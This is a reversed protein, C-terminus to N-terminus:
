HGRCALAELIEEIRAPDGAAVVEGNSGAHLPDGQWDCMRGGAGEVIPVLAAFDHLKLGAEVVIDLWGSAVCGYNYCDGGLVTSMVAADLHEFAHLQHDDFLAPSTTGLIAGKLDRCARTETPKGNFLTPRGAVGLWREGIIPQDIVGLLPWGDEILAILTGFIPRGAIFARTGDIPDLVWQRGSSGERIGFEEGIIGDMPREAILLRRMAEEAERDARTVPSQDEKAELGFSGRFYPRIAAGAADALRAALAIDTESVAM